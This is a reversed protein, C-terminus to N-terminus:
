WEIKVDVVGEHSGTLQAFDVESLDIIRGDVYPGRDSVTCIVSKGSALHTVRVRTGKPITRHACTGPAAAVYWSAKGVEQGAVFQAATTTPAPPKATTTTTPAHTHTTTTPKVTTTTAPAHTHTTTTPKVTTATAAHTSTTTPAKVTVPVAVAATSPVTVPLEVPREGADRAARSSGSRELDAASLRTAGAGSAPSERNTRAILAPLLLLGSCLLLAVV